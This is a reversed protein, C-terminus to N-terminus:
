AEKKTGALADLVARVIARSQTEPHEARHTHLEARVVEVLTEVDLAPRGAFVARQIAEGILRDVERDSEPLGDWTVLWSAKPDRQACAWRVWTDRVIRGLTERDLTTPPTTKPAPSPDPPDIADACGALFTLVQEGTHDSPPVFVGRAMRIAERVAEAKEKLTM